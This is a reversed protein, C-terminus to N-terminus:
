RFRRRAFADLPLLLAAAALLWPWLPAVQGRPGGVTGQPLSLRSLLAADPARHTHERSPPALWSRRALPTGEADLAVIHWTEGDIPLQGRWTGPASATLALPQPSDDHGALVIPRPLSLGTADYRTLTVSGLDDVAITTDQGLGDLMGRVLQVWLRGGDPWSRWGSAWRGGDDTTVSTVEGLGVRWTSLLPTGDATSLITRATPRPLVRNHGTLPPAQEIHIGTLAPHWQVRTIRLDPSEELAAGLLEETEQAFLAPLREPDDTAHFRGGGRRALEMLFEADQASRSGIGIVSLTIGDRSLASVLDEATQGGRRQEGADATDAFLILHRLPTDSARLADRASELATLTYIGGGGSSISRIRSSIADRSSVSQVPVAWRAQTDVSLVGIHDTDRLLKLAAVAGEAALRIKSGAPRGGVLRSGIAGVIQAETTGLAASQAMSGSKDLAIVLTIADDKLAGDPDLRVPLLDALPRSHWGGLDYSADGGLTLLSGGSAVYGTLDADFDAPLRAASVDVMVILDADMSDPLADPTLRIPAMGEAALLAALHAGARPRDSIIWIRPAPRITIAADTTTQGATVSLLAPGDPLAAPLSVSLPLTVSGGAAAVAPLPALATEGIRLALDGSWDTDGGTLTLTGTLTEGPAPEPNDLTIATVAPGHQDPQLVEASVAVGREAALALAATPDTDSHGDTLVVIRGPPQAPILALAARLAADLDTRAGPTATITPWPQGPIAQILPQGAFSILGADDGDPLADRQRIAEALGREQEAMPISQSTDLVFMVTQGPDPRTIVPDALALVLLSLLIARTLVGPGPRRWAMLAALLMVPALLWLAAAWQLSM